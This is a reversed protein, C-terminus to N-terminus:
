PGAVVMPAGTVPDPVVECAFDFVTRMLEATLIERPEGQAVIGGDRMAILHDAFRSAQNIDHLVVVVTRGADRLRALLRLLEYQHTIDLFTTPEDLLLYSTQQALAMAIWVRQRQGGSLADVTRDAIGTVGALEMAETVAAEDAESWTSLLTQHPFRGRAVLRQVTIGEPALAEQPLFGLLRALEPGRYDHLRRDDFLVKGTQPQLLRVLSRLLTSKGCANPGTIATFARDPIDVTLDRSVVRDRYGLTAGLTRLRVGAASPHVSPSM